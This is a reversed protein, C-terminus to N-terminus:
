RCPLTELCLLVRAAHAPGRAECLPGHVCWLVMQLSHVACPLFAPVARLELSRTCAAVTPSLPPILPRAIRKSQHVFVITGGLPEVEM